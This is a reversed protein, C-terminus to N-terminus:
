AFYRFDTGAKLQLLFEYFLRITNEVDDQHAMEVTTHMYKLPVSLLASPV